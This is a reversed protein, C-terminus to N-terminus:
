EDGDTVEEYGCVCGWLNRTTGVVCSLRMGCQPCVIDKPGRIVTLAERIRRVLDDAEEPTLDTWNEYTEILHLRVENKPPIAVIEVKSDSSKM